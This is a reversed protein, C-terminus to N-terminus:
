SRECNRSTGKSLYFEAQLADKQIGL